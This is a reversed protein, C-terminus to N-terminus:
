RRGRNADRLLQLGRSRFRARRANAKIVEDIEAGLVGNVVRM